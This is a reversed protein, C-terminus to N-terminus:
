QVFNSRKQNTRSPQSSAAIPRSFPREDQSCPSTQGSTWARTTHARSGWASTRDPWRRTAEKSSRGHSGAVCDSWPWSASSCGPEAALPRTAPAAVAMRAPRTPRTGTDDTGTDDGGAPTEEDVEDCDQDIGDDLIEEADPHISADADDCDTGATVGGGPSDDGYGDGDGDTMCDTSSEASAAGPFTDGDTDDCDQDDSTYGSPQDSATTTSSADGYGDSDTDAYWTCAEGVSSDDDDCDSTACYGDEDEDRCDGYYVYASGSYSGNDDDYPAGIVLDDYGDGDVDGAGAVSASNTAKRATRPSSSTRPAPTSAPRLATTSTPRTAPRGSSSTTTAM